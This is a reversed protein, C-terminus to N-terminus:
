TESGAMINNLQTLITVQSFHPWFWELVLLYSHQLGFDPTVGTPAPSARLAGHRLEYHSTQACVFGHAKPIHRVGNLCHYKM